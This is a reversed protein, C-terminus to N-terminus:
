GLSGYTQPSQNVVKEYHQPHHHKRSRLVIIVGLVGGVCIGFSGIVIIAVAWAPLKGVMLVEHHDNVLCRFGDTCFNNLNVEIIDSWWQCTLYVTNDQFMVLSPGLQPNVGSTYTGDIDNANGQVAMVGELSLSGNYTIRYIQGGHTTIYLYGNAWFHGSYWFFEPLVLTNVIVLEETMQVLYANSATFNVNTMIGSQILAYLIGQDRGDRLIAPINLTGPVIGSVNINGINQIVELNTLNVTIILPDFTFRNSGGITVINLKSNISIPSIDYTGSYTLNQAFLNASAM